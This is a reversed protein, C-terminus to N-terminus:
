PNYTNNALEISFLQIYHHFIQRRQKQSIIQGETIRYNKNRTLRNPHQLYHSLSHYATFRTIVRVVECNMSLMDERRKLEMTFMKHSSKKELIEASPM